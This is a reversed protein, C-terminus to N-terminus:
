EHKRCKNVMNAIRITMKRKKIDNEIFEDGNKVFGIKEFFAESTIFSNINVSKIGAMFAKNLLLRVIFDGYEKGRYEKLVAVKDLWCEDGDFFLRGTAVALKETTCNNQMAHDTKEYAIAHVAFDDMYDFELNYPIRFEEVFVKSRINIVETLDDGPM